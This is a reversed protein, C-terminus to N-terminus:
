PFPVEDQKGFVADLEAMTPQKDEDIPVVETAQEAPKEENDKVLAVMNFLEVAVEYVSNAYEDLKQKKAPDIPGVATVAQGISWMAQIAKDDKPQYAPKSGGGGGAPAGGGFAPREKKFKPGYQGTYDITGTIESGAVPAPTTSKQAIEVVADVGDLKLKYSKMEGYQTTFTRVEQSVAAIKFAPM